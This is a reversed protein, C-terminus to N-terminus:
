RANGYERYAGGICKQPQNGPKRGRRRAQKALRMRMYGETCQEMSDWAPEPVRGPDVAWRDIEEWSTYDMSYEEKPQEQKRKEQQVKPHSCEGPKAWPGRGDLIEEWTWFDKIRLEEKPQEQRNVRQKTRKRHTIRDRNEHPSPSDSWVAAHINRDM